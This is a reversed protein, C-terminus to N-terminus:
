AGAKALAATAALEANLAAELPSRCLGAHAYQLNEYIEASAPMAALLADLAEGPSAQALLVAIQRAVDRYQAASAGRPERELRELLAATAALTRLGAPLRPHTQTQM